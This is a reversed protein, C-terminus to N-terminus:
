SMKWRAYMSETYHGYWRRMVATFTSTWYQKSLRDQLKRMFNQSLRRLLVQFLFLRCYCPPNGTFVVLKVEGTYRYLPGSPSYAVYIIPFTDPQASWAPLLSTSVTIHRAFIINEVIRSHMPPSFCYLLTLYAM